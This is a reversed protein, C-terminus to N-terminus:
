QESTMFQYLFITRRLYIQGGQGSGCNLFILEERRKRIMFVVCKMENVARVLRYYDSVSIFGLVASRSFLKTLHVFCGLVRNLSCRVQLSVVESLKKYFFSNFFHFRQREEPSLFEDRQIYRFCQSLVFCNLFARLGLPIFDMTAARVHGKYSLSQKWLSLFMLAVRLCKFGVYDDVRMM